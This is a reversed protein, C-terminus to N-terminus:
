ASSKNLAHQQRAQDVFKLFALRRLCNPCYKDKRIQADEIARLFHMKDLSIKAGTPLGFYTPDYLAFELMCLECLVLSLDGFVRFVAYTHQGELAHKIEGPINGCDMCPAVDIVELESYCLPCHTDSM